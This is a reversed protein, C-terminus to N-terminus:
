HMAAIARVETHKRVASPTGGALEKFARSFHAYDSFGSNLAAETMSKGLSIALGARYVRYWQRYRAIPVGTVLRFLETLRSRSLNVRKGLDDLSINQDYNERIHALAKVIRPDPLHQETESLYDIWTNIEMLAEEASVRKNMIKSASQILENECELNAFLRPSSKNGAIANKMFPKIKVFDSGLDDLCFVAVESGRTKISLNTDSPILISKTFYPTSSASDIIELDDGLSLM